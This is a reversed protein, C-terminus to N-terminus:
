CEQKLDSKECINETKRRGTNARFKGMSGLPKTIGERDERSNGRGTYSDFSPKKLFLSNGQSGRLVRRGRRTRNWNPFAWNTTKLIEILKPSFTSGFNVMVSLGMRFDRLMKIGRTLNRKNRFSSIKNRSILPGPRRASDAVFTERSEGRPFSHTGDFLMDLVMMRLFSGPGKVNFSPDTAFGGGM